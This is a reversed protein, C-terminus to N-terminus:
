PKPKAALVRLAIHVGATAGLIAAWSALARTNLDRAYLLIMVVFTVATGIWVALKPRSELLPM